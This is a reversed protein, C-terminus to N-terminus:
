ARSPHGGDVEGDHLGIEEAIKELAGVLDDGAFLEEFVDPADVLVGVGAGDVVEEDAEAAVEFGVGCVGAVEEGDAADAIAEHRLGSRLSAVGESKSNSKSKSKSKSKSNSNSKSKSKSNSKKSTM